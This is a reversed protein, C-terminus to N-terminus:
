FVSISSYTVLYFVTCCHVSFRSQLSGENLNIWFSPAFTFSDRTTKAPGHPSLQLVPKSILAVLWVLLNSTDEKLWFLM